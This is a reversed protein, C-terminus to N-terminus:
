PMKRPSKPREKTLRLGTISTIRVLKGAVSSSPIAAM